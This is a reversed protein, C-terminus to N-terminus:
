SDDHGFGGAARSRQFRVRGIWWVWAGSICLMAALGISLHSVLLGLPRWAMLSAIAAVWTAKMFTMVYGYLNRARDEPLAGVTFLDRLGRLIGELFGHLFAVSFFGVVCCAAILVLYTMRSGEM